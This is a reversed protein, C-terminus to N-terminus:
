RKGDEDFDVSGADSVASSITGSQQPALLAKVDDSNLSVGNIAARLKIIEGDAERRHYREEELAEELKAVKSMHEQLLAPSVYNEPMGEPISEAVVASSMRRHIPPSDPTRKSPRRSARLQQLESKDQSGEVAQRQIDSELKEVTAKAEELEKEIEAIRRELLAIQDEKEKLEKLHAAGAASEKAQANLMARLTAMEEKLKVNANKLKGVDKQERKLETLMNLATRRRVACQLAIIASKLLRYKKQAIYKRYCREVVISAMGKRVDRGRVRAQLKVAGRRGRNYARWKVLMRFHNTLLDGASGQRLHRWRFTCISCPHAVTEFFVFVSRRM